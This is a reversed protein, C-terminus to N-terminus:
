GSAPMPGALSGGPPSRLKFLATGLALALLGVGAACFFLSASFRRPRYSFVVRYDGPGDVYVAKFAHNARIVPAERGDITASFNGAEFAEELVIFGPGTAAVTFATTNETLRYDHAARVIRKSLDGNVRPLPILKTWDAHQIGVFPRGDGAKVWSCFQAADNYVAASDTFFARPWVSDSEFSDMDLSALPRLQKGIPIRDRRYSLYYRVNLLDFVPRLRHLDEAEVMYRWDWVRRVGAADLLERYLPNVLADPGSIGELGYAGSWGPLLDDHLGLARFPADGRALLADITPSDARLDVRHPPKVVYDSYGVGAQLGGRWSLLAWALAAFVVTAATPSGRRRMFHISALLVGAGAVLSLAYFKIFPAVEILKGWTKDWYASRVIVQATGFYAGFIGALLLMVALAERRGEISGLRALAERWGISSLVSLVIILACSFTNDVHLINGIFPIRSVWVPPVVGFALGLAPLSAVLLSAVWRDGVLSRWRVGAWLLGLLVLLTCSPNVVGSELQFPRYFAEDFLGILMGPQLQFALPSNYSTYSAKLAHLFTLWVPAGIMAFLVGAAFLGALLSIKERFPRGCGLLLCLGAFNMSLILTYAEKVTGSNMETWNAGVLAALWVVARWSMRGAIVRLWCYLIWPSYCLSFIAPHNVRYVFFGMFSASAATLLSAPLSRSCNWACLGIGWALLWKALIFKVDWAWAAGNAMMPLLNLPDGFCSQGQGLLPSGGSDYRNWLPWEGEGLARREIMSLPLHHWLLAAVDAKHPDGVEISQFGPLWPNQGYLLAVGFNPTVITRGAFIVPYNAGVTSLATAVLLARGPHARALAWAAAARDQWRLRPSRVAWAMLLVCGLSAAFVSAAGLYWPRRPLSFPGTLAIGMQPDYGGPTIEIYLNPGETKLADIQYQPQFRDPGFALLTRGSRDAIRAGSVTMKAARDNPDFRLTKFTGSPLPFRLLAPHGALITQIASDAESLGRGTDFYLQVLGSRDSEVRVEFACGSGAEWGWPEFLVAAAVAVALCALLVPYSPIRPSSLSM